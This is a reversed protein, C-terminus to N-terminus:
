LVSNATQQKLDALATSTHLAVQMARNNVDNTQAIQLKYNEFISDSVKTKTAEIERSLAYFPDISFDAM